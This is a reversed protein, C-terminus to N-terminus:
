QDNFRYLRITKGNPHGISKIMELTPDVAEINEPHTLQSRAQGLFHDDIVLYKVKHYRAYNIIEEATGWPTTKLKTTAYFPVHPSPSMILTSPPLSLHNKIWLGLEKHEHPYMSAYHKSAALFPLTAGLTWFSFILLLFSYSSLSSRHSFRTLLKDHVVAIGNALWILLITVMPLVWRNSSTSILPASLLPFLPGLLILQNVLRTRDWKGSYFGLPILIAALFSFLKMGDFLLGIEQRFNHLYRRVFTSPDESFLNIISLHQGPYNASTFYRLETGVDNLQYVKEQNEGSFLLSSRVINMTMLGSLTWYRYHNRLFVLYPSALLAFALFLSLLTAIIKRRSLNKILGVLLFLLLYIAFYQVGAPKCLYLLGFLSGLLCYTPIKHNKLAYFTLLIIVLLLFIFQSEATDTTSFRILNPHLAVLTAAILATKKTYTHKAIAYVFLIIFTGCILSVLKSSFELDGLVLWFLGITIPYVPPYYWQYIGEPENYGSGSVLNKGLMSYYAGDSDIVQHHSFVYLRLIMGLLLIAFLVLYGSRITNRIDM